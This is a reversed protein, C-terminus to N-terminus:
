VVDRITESIYPDGRFCMNLPRKMGKKTKWARNNSSCCLIKQRKCARDLLSRHNVPCVPRRIWTKTEGRLNILLSISSWTCLLRKLGMFGLSAYLSGVIIAGEGRESAGWSHNRKLTVSVIACESWCVTAMRITSTRVKQSEKQSKHMNEERFMHHLFM